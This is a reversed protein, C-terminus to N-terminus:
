RPEWLVLGELVLQPRYELEVALHPVIREADGGTVVVVAGNDEALAETCREILACVAGLVGHGVAEGTDRGPALSAGALSHGETFRKLDGTDGTLSRWMMDLGPLIFGGRHEGNAAILDITIASGADVVCAAGSYRDVAALMALWRDVGLKTYDRYANRLRGAQKQAEAFSVDSGLNAVLQAAVRDGFEPGAVNAIVIGAPRDRVDELLAAAAIRPDNGHARIEVEGLRGNAFMAWKIRTNGIDVLLKM